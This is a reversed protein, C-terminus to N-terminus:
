DPALLPQPFRDLGRRPPRSRRSEDSPPPSRGQCRFVGRTEASSQTCASLLRPATTSELPTGTRGYGTSLAFKPHRAAGRRPPPDVVHTRELFPKIAEKLPGRPCRGPHFDLLNSHGSPSGGARTRNEPASHVSSLPFVRAPTTLIRASTHGSRIAPVACGSRAGAQAPILDSRGHIQHPIRIAFRAPSASSGVGISRFPAPQDM